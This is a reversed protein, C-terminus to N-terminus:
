AFLVLFFFLSFNGLSCPPAEGAAILAPVCAPAIPHTCATGLPVARWFPKGLGGMGQHRKEGQEMAPEHVVTDGGVAPVLRRLVLM